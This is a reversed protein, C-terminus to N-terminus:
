NLFKDLDFSKRHLDCLGYAKIMDRHFKTGYGKHKEFGYQAYKTDLKSMLDDRYVKAIISAAAISVSVRDGGIIARQKEPDINKILFADILIYDPFKTLKSIVNYFAIQTAQGIGVTNIVEVGVEEIAWFQACKKIEEALQERKKPSLLKSDAIGSPIQCNKNFVVAGVVVPGAFCGRGVEDVGCVIELGYDWYQKELDSTAFIM